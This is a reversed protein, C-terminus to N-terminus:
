RRLNAPPTHTQKKPIAGRMAHDGVAHIIARSECPPLSQSRDVQPVGDADRGEQRDAPRRQLDNLDPLGLPQLGEASVNIECPLQLGIRQLEGDSRRPRSWRHTSAVAIGRALKYSRPLNTNRKV